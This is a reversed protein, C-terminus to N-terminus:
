RTTKLRRRADLLESLTQWNDISALVLGRWIYGPIALPNM